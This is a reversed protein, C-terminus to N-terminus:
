KKQKLLCRFINSHNIDFLRRQERRLTNYDRANYKLKYDM